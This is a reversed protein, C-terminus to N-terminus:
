VVTKHELATSKRVIQSIGYHMQFRSSMGIDMVQNVVDAGLKMDHLKAEVDPTVDRVDRSDEETAM